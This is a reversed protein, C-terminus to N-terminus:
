SSKNNIFVNEFQKMIKEPTFNNLTSTKFNGTSQHTYNKLISFLEEKNNYLIAKDGLNKLHQQHWLGGNWTIVPKNCFSFELISLGFSEGLTCAHLMADCTNIFKRKIRTDVFSELYIIRHHLVDSLINPQVCFIFYMDQRTNLIELIVEKTYSINFTDAGGHRGIVIANDPINLEKRYNTKVDPLHVIHNVFPYLVNSENKSFDGNVSPSGSLASPAKSVSESVGAYVSGHPNDTTFVCHVWTPLDKLVLGDNTGYKISYMADVKEEKCINELDQLNDYYLITFEKNFKELVSKDPISIQNKPSVIISINNLIRRNYIAYDFTAVESGRFTFQYVHFAIKM